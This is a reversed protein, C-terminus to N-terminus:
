HPMDGVGGEDQLGMLSRFRAVKVRPLAKTLIDAPMDATPCFHPDIMGSKCVDRLWYYRLDLHKLRGFHEPNKAVSIATTTWTFYPHSTMWQTGSSQSCTECGSCRRAQLFLQLLSRKLPLSCWLRRYVAQGCFRVLVWKSSMALPLNGLTPAALTTLMLSCPSSSTMLRLPHQAQSKIRM